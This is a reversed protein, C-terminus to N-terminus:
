EYNNLTIISSNQIGNNEITDFRNIKKGNFLFFNERNKYEPYKEYLLEETRSFKDTNKCILAYHIRQDASVFIITMLKEGKKLNFINAEKLEKLEDNKKELKVILELIENKNDNGEIKKNKLLQNINNTENIQNKLNKIINEDEIEKKKLIKIENSLNLKDKELQEIMNKLREIEKENKESENLKVKNPIFSEDEKLRRKFALHAITEFAEGLNKNDKVSVEFYPMNSKTKCYEIIKEPQVKRELVKDCKNGILVFPFADPDKPKLHGLFENRWTEISEFSIQDTM